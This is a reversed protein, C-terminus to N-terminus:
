RGGSKGEKNLFVRGYSVIANKEGIQYRHNHMTDASMTGSCETRGVWKM